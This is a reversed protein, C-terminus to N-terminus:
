PMLAFFPGTDHSYIIEGKRLYGVKLGGYIHVFFFLLVGYLAVMLWNGKRFFPLEINSNYHYLWVIWYLSMQMAIVTLSSMFKIIRKFQERQNM